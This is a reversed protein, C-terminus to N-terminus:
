YWSGMNEHSFPRELTAHCSFLRSSGPPLLEALCLANQVKILTCARFSIRGGTIEHFIRAEVSGVRLWWSRDMVCGDDMSAGGDRNRDLVMGGFPLRLLSVQREVPRNSGMWSCSGAAANSSAKWSSPSKGRPTTKSARISSTWWCCWSESSLLENMLKCGAGLAFAGTPWRRASIRSFKVGSAIRRDVFDFFVKEFCWVLWLLNM